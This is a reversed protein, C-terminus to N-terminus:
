VYEILPRYYGMALRLLVFATVVAGLGWLVEKTQM